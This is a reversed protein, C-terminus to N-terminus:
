AARPRADMLVVLGAAMVHPRVHPSLAGETVLDVEHGLAHRLAREARALDLLSKPRDFRVLLDVDSGAHAEGRAASGFLGAFVTDHARCTARLADLDLTDSAIKQM